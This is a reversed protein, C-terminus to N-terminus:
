VQAEETSDAEEAEEVDTEPETVPTTASEDGGSMVQDDFM